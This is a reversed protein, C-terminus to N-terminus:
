NNWMRMAFIMWILYAFPNNMYDNQDETEVVSNTIETVARYIDEDMTKSSNQTVGFAKLVADRIKNRNFEEKIGDRKIVMFLM